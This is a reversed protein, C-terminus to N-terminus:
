LHAQHPVSTTSLITGCMGIPGMRDSSSQSSQLLSDTPASGAITKISPVSSTVTCGQTSLSTVGDLLRNNRCDVLLGYYSFLDVGIIPLQVDAVVFRWTFDRRLWLDSIAIDMWLNLHDHRQGRVSQLRHAGQAGPPAEEPLRVPVSGTDIVHRQKSTRDTVFLRGSSTTCANGATLTRQQHKGPPPFVPTHVKPSQGWIEQSVLM